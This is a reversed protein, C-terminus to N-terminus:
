VGANKDFKEEKRREIYDKIKEVLGPRRPKTVIVETTGPSPVVSSYYKYKDDKTESNGVM